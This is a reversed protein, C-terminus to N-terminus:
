LSHIGQGALYTPASYIAGIIMIIRSSLKALLVQLKLPTCPTGLGGTVCSRTKGEGEGAASVDSTFPLPSLVCNPELGAERSVTRGQRTKSTLKWHQCSRPYHTTEM